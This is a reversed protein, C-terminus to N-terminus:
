QVTPENFPHKPHIPSHSKSALAPNHNSGSYSSSHQRRGGLGPAIGKLSGNSNCIYTYEDEGQVRINTYAHIHTYEYINTYKYGVGLIAKNTRGDTRGHCFKLRIMSIHVM